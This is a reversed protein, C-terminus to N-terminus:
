HINLNKSGNMAEHIVYMQYFVALTVQGHLVSRVDFDNALLSTVALWVQTASAFCTKHKSWLSDMNM